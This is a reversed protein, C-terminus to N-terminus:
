GYWAGEQMGFSGDMECASAFAFFCRTLVIEDTKPFRIDTDDQGPPFLLGREQRFCLVCYAM